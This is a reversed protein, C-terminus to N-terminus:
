KALILQRTEADDDDVPDRNELIDKAHDQRTRMVVKLSADSVGKKNNRFRM